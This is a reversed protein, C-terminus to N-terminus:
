MYKTALSMIEEQTATKGDIIGSLKGECMVAIRDSMGILEPMESSIMIVSKGQEVLSVIITYIEYKAGVDIGRTPEDLIFVDPNNALWRSIITKQQNGGSLSRIKTKSDPTKISLKEVNERVLEEIKRKSLVIGFNVYNDLSSVSVNDAVSLVSFIGSKRRDETLMAIGKQIATRPRKINIQEGLYRICGSRISRIGFIAEMLETRQAGTLGGIGLIEGRRLQFTINQFSHPDPSCLDDIEFIVEAPVNQREPYREKMERGVMNKIITDITLDKALWSGVYKGDRLITVEDSIKLIEEIKHSIYILAVGQVKLKNIIGFLVEVESETLSSTPEDMIVIRANQSVAKAIEVSQIQSVSLSSLRATPDINLGLMVLLEKTESNMKKHDVIKVPGVRKMPYRGVFINEAVSRDAIPQLEQHIMSIGQRIAEKANNLSVKEGNLLIEGQDMKYIGFLCKMLTSKGAGNEGMLSHVTGPKVNITVNDLAQVGPFAKSINCLELVYDSM